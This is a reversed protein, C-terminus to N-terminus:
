RLYEGLTQWHEFKESFRKAAHAPSTSPLTIFKPSNETFLQPLVSKRFSQWAKAGNFAILKLQSQQQILQQFNNPQEARIATDLSGQRQCSQLVDWLAVGHQQLRLLRETYPLQPDFHLLKAMIPWFANRPHAYYQQESLSQAGPMSGLILLRAKAPLVPALGYLRPSAASM